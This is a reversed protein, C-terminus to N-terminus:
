KLRMKCVLRPLFSTFFRTIEPEAWYRPRFPWHGGVFGCHGGHTSLKFILAASIEAPRPIIDATTLPDDVAHILLTPTHIDPLLKRVSCRSYYDEAGRFGHLPATVLEDFERFTRVRDLAGPDIPLQVLKLKERLLAKM